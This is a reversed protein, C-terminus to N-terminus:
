GTCRAILDTLSKGKGGGGSLVKNDIRKGGGEHTVGGRRLGFNKVPAHTGNKKAIRTDAREKDRCRERKQSNGFPKPHGEQKNNKGKKDERLRRGPKKRLVQRRFRGGDRYKRRRPGGGLVCRPEKKNSKTKRGGKKKKETRYLKRFIRRKERGQFEKEQKSGEKASQGQEKKQRTTLLV